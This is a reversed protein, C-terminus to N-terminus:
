IIAGPEPERAFGYVYPNEFILANRETKYRQARM